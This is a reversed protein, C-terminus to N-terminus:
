LSCGTQLTLADFQNQTQDVNVNNNVAAQVTSLDQAFMVLGAYSRQLIRNDRGLSDRQAVAPRLTHAVLDKCQSLM